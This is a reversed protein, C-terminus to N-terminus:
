CWSEFGFREQPSDEVRRVIVPRPQHVRVPEVLVADAHASNM